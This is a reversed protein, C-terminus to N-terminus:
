GVFTTSAALTTQKPNSQAYGGKFYGLTYTVGRQINGSSLNIGFNGANNNSGLQVFWTPPMNYLVAETQGQWLGVWDGDAQPTMGAPMAYSFSVSTSGKNTVLISPAQVPDYPPQHSDTSPVFVAAVINKVSNGVAFAVLYPESSVSLGQFVSSGNPQPSQVIQSHAPQTSVPIFVQSTQWIFVTNGYANPQNGPMTDYRYTIQTGTVDEPKITFNTVLAQQSPANLEKAM